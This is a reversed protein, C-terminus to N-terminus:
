STRGQGPKGGSRARMRTSLRAVLMGPISLVSFMVMGLPWLGGLEGNRIVMGVFQFLFLTLPWRWPRQPFAFGLLGSLVIACPYAGTWYVASDWAERRGSIVSAAIWLTVGALAAVAFPLVAGQPKV